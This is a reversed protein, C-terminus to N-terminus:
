QLNSILGEMRRMLTPREFFIVEFVPSFREAFSSQGPVPTADVTVAPAQPTWGTGSTESPATSPSWNLPSDVSAMAPKPPATPNQHHVMRLQYRNAAAHTGPHWCKAGDRNHARLKWHPWAGPYASKVAAASSLCSSAQAGSSAQVGALSSLLVILTCCVLWILKTPRLAMIVGYGSKFLTAFLV